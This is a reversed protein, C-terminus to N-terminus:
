RDVQMEPTRPDARRGYLHLDCSTLPVLQPELFQTVASRQLQQREQVTSRMTNGEMKAAMREKAEAEQQEDIQSRLQEIAEQPHFVAWYFADDAAAEKATTTGELIRPSRPAEFFAAYRNDHQ